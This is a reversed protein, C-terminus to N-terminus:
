AASRAERIRRAFSPVKKRRRAARRVLPVSVATSGLLGATWWAGPGVSNTASEAEVETAFRQALRAGATEDEGDVPVPPPELASRGPLTLTIDAQNGALDAVWVHGHGGIADASPELLIRQRPPDTRLVWGHPLSANVHDWDIGSDRDTPLIMRRGSTQADSTTLIPAVRDVKYTWRAVATNGARDKANVKVIWTGDGPLPVDAREADTQNWAPPEPVGHPFLKWSLLARSADTLNVTVVRRHTWGPTISPEAIPDTRDVQFSVSAVGRMPKGDAANAGSVTFSHNGETWADAGALSVFYTSANAFWRAEDIREPGLDIRPPRSPDMRRDFDIRIEQAGSAWYPKAVRVAVVHPYLGPHDVIVAAAPGINGAADRARVEYALSSRSPDFPDALRSADAPLVWEAEDIHIRRVHWEVVPAGRTQNDRWAVSGPTATVNPAPPAVTDKGITFNTWPGTNGVRDRARLFVIHPAEDAWDSPVSVNTAWPSDGGPDVTWQFETAGAGEDLITPRWTTNVGLWITTSADRFTPPTADVRFRGASANWTRGPVTWRYERDQAPIAVVEGAAFEGVIWTGNAHERELLLRDVTAGAHVARASLEGVASSAIWGDVAAPTWTTRTDWRPEENPAGPTAHWRTWNGDVCSLSEDLEDNADASPLASGTWSGFRVEDAASGDVRLLAIHANNNIEGPPNLIVRRAGPDITGGLELTTPTTDNLVLRWGTVDIPAPARNHLEVYEDSPTTKGDGNWDHLPDAVIEVLRVDDGPDSSGVPMALLPLLVLFPPLIRRM